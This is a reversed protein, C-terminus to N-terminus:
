FIASLLLDVTVKSITFVDVSNSAPPTLTEGPAAPDDATVPASGCPPTNVEGPTCPPSSTEGALATGALVFALTVAAGLRKLNKM